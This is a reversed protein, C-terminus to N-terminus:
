QPSEKVYLPSQKLEAKAPLVEFRADVVKRFSESITNADIVDVRFPLTSEEFAEALEGMKRPSLKEACAVCLDLDSHKKAKGNVRSGFARVECDPVHEGLIGVVIEMQEPTIDIM